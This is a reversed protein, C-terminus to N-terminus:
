NSISTRRIIFTLFIRPFDDNEDQRRLYLSRTIGGVSDVHFEEYTNNM